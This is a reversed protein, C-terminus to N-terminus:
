VTMKERQRWDKEQEPWSGPDWLLDLMTNKLPLTAKVNKLIHGSPASWELDFANSFLLWMIGGENATGLLQERSKMAFGIVAM